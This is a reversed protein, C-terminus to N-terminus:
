KEETEDEEIDEYYNEVYEILADRLDEDAQADLAEQEEDTLEPEEPLEIGLEPNEEAAQEVYEDIQEEISSFDFEEDNQAITWIAKRAKLSLTPYEDILYENVDITILPDHGEDFQYFLNRRENNPM